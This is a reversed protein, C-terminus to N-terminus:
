NSQFRLRLVIFCLGVDIWVRQICTFVRNVGAVGFLLNPLYPFGVTPVNCISVCKYDRALYHNNIRLYGLYTVYNRLCFFTTNRLLM